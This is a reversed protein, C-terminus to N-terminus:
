PFLLIVTHAYLQSLTIIQIRHFKIENNKGGLIKGTQKSKGYGNKEKARVMHGTM